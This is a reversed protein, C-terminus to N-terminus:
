SMPSRVFKIEEEPSSPETFDKCKLSEHIAEEEKSMRARPVPLDDVSAALETISKELDRVADDHIRRWEPVRGRYYPDHHNLRVKAVFEDWIKKHAQLALRFREPMKDDHRPDNGLLIQLSMSFGNFRLGFELFEDTSPVELLAAEFLDLIEDREEGSGEGAARKCYGEFRGMFDVGYTILFGSLPHTAFMRRTLDGGAQGATGDQRGSGDCLAYLGGGESIEGADTMEGAIRRVVDSSFGDTDLYYPLDRRLPDSEPLGARELYVRHEIERMGAGGGAARGIMRRIGAGDM